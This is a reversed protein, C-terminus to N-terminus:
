TEAGTKKKKGLLFNFDRRYFRFFLLVFGSITFLVAFLSTVIILWNNTDHREDYDMIHLMWFFDYFRWVSSRRAVIRGETPSIYITSSEADDFIIQWVPLAGRYDVSPANVEKVSLVPVDPSFDELAIAEALESPIPSLLKGTLADRVQREGDTLRLRVVPRELLTDYRVNSASKGVYELLRSLPMFNQDSSFIAPARDDIKHEGRVMDLPIWTM